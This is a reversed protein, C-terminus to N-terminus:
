ATRWVKLQSISNKIKSQNKKLTGVDKNIKKNMDQIIKKIEDTQIRKSSM